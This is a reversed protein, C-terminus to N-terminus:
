CRLRCFDTKAATRNSSSAYFLSVCLCYYCIQRLQPEIAAAQMFYRYAYATTAFGTPVKVGKSKLQQIMEGLSANKGGVRPIDTIGVKELPLVLTESLVQYETNQNSLIKLGM